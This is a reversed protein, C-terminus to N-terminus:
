LGEFHLKGDDGLTAGEELSPMETEV